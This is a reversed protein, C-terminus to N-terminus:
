KALGKSNGREFFKLDIGQVKDRLILVAFFSARNENFGDWTTM